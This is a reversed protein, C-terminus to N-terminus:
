LGLDNRFDDSIASKDFQCNAKAYDFAEEVVVDSSQGLIMDRNHDYIDARGQQMGEVVFYYTFEGQQLSDLEYSYSTEGSAMNVVRGAGSLDNMGGSFCSDFVFCIRSTDFPAFWSKLQGDWIYAFTESDGWCVIAEDIKESDGDNAVGQAGHGSFFFFVEDGGVENNKITDVAYLINQATAESDVLTIVNASPFHYVDILVEQMALADDDGYSLDSGMGPYDSIGVVIAYRNGGTVVGIVGTAAGPGHKKNAVAVARPSPGKLTVKKLLEVDKAAVAKFELQNEKALTVGSMVSLTLLLVIIIAVIKWARM